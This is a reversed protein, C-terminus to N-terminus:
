KALVALIILYLCWGDASIALLWVLASFHGRRNDYYAVAWSIM